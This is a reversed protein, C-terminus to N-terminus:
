HSPSTMVADYQMDHFRVECLSKETNRVSLESSLIKISFVHSHLLYEALSQYCFKEVLVPFIFLPCSEALTIFLWKPQICDCFCEAM